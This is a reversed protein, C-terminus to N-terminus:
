PASMLKSFHFKHRLEARLPRYILAFAAFSIEISKDSTAMTLEVACCSSSLLKYNMYIYTHICSIPACVMKDYIRSSVTRMYVNNTHIKHRILLRLM